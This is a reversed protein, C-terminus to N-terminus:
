NAQPMPVAPMYVMAAGHAIAWTLAAHADAFQLSRRQRRGGARTVLEALTGPAPCFLTQAFDFAPLPFAKGTNV